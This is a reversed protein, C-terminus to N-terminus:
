NIHYTVGVSIILNNQNQPQYKFETNLSFEDSLRYMFGSGINLGSTNILNEEEPAFELRRRFYHFGLLGYLQSRGETFYYKADIDYSSAKGSAPFYVALFATGSLNNIFFYEGSLNMGFLNTSIGYENGLRARLEGEVQGFSPISIILLLFGVLLKKM